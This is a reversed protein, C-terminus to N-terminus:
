GINNKRAVQDKLSMMMMMVLSLSPARQHGVGAEDDQILQKPGTSFPETGASKSRQVVGCCKRDVRHAFTM